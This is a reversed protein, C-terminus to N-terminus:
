WSLIIDSDDAIMKDLAEQWHKAANFNGQKKYQEIMEKVIERDM